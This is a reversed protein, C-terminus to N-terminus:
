FKKMKQPTLLDVLSGGFKLVFDHKQDCLNANWKTTMERM